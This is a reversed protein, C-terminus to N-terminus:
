KNITSKLKLEKIKMEMLRSEYEFDEVPETTERPMSRMAVTTDAYAPYTVPSVDYLSEVKVIKRLSPKGDQGREWSDEKVTFAFSSQSVDGREILKALDNHMTISRDLKVEYWLGFNDIGFTLTQKDPYAGFMNNGRGLVINSDHNFLARVDNNLVEDFAEPMIMEDIYGLSTRSNFLAAYGKITYTKDDDDNRLEFKSDFYRREGKPIETIYDKNKEM